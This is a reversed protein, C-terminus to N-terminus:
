YAMGRLSTTVTGTCFLGAVGHARLGEDTFLEVVVPNFCEFRVSGVFSDRVPVRPATTEFGSIKM